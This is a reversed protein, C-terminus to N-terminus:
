IPSFIFFCFIVWELIKLIHYLFRLLLIFLPLNYRSCTFHLLAIKLAKSYKKPPRFLIWQMDVSSYNGANYVTDSFHYLVALFVLNPLSLKCDGAAQEVQKLRLNWRHCQFSSVQIWENIKYSHSKWLNHHAGLRHMRPLSNSFIIRSDIIGHKWSIKLAIPNLARIWFFISILIFLLWVRKWLMASYVYLLPLCKDLSEYKQNNKYNCQLSDYM